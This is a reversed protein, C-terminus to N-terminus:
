ICLTDSVIKLLSAGGWQVTLVDVPLGRTAARGHELMERSWLKALGTLSRWSIRGFADGPDRGQM